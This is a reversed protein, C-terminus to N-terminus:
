RLSLMIVTALAALAAAAMFLQQNTWSRWLPEGAFIPGVIAGVRGIGLCWGV